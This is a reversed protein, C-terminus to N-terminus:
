GGAVAALGLYAGRIREDARLQASTGAAVVRGTELVYASSAVDLATEVDQEAVLVTLGEDRNLTQVMEFIEEVILPALGTCPEDLLLLKPRGMLARGIALMQGQGGSLTSAHRDAHPQLEPFYGFVREIDDPIQKRDRRAYAGLRLNEVVTLETFLQRGEPVHVVGTQVIREPSLRELNRGQYVITGASPRVLGSIARLLTSKGAGNAGLVAVIAGDPVEIDVGEIAKVAGYAATLGNVKLM